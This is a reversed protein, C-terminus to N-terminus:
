QVLCFPKAKLTSNKGCLLGDIILIFTFPSVQLIFEKTSLLSFLTQNDTSSFVLCSMKNKVCFPGNGSEKKKIKTKEICNPPCKKLVFKASSQMRVMSRQFQFRGGQRSLWLLQGVFYQTPRYKIESQSSLVFWSIKM